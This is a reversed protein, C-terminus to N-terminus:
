NVEVTGDVQLRQMAATAASELAVRLSEILADLQSDELREWTAPTLTITVMYVGLIPPM